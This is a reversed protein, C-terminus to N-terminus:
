SCCRWSGASAGAAPGNGPKYGTLMARVLNERHLASSLIVAIVHVVVLAVAANALGEHLDEMWRPGVEIAQAWGTAAIWRDACAHRPHGLQGGPQARLLTATFVEVTSKLYDIVARPSLPFSTFRAYRTGVFGWLVRFAVLGVASYGLLMHIDRLRESESTVFSGVFSAVLLWHFM